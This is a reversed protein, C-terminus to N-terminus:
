AEAAALDAESIGEYLDRFDQASLSSIDATRYLVIEEGNETVESKPGFLKQIDPAARIVFKSTGDKASLIAAIGTWDEYFHEQLLPVIRDRFVARLGEFDAIPTFYAHGIAADRGRLVCLRANIVRMLRRLDINDGGDDAEIRGDGNQGAIASATPGIERFIFRRRLAIDVLAISRDSTNMTGYIDLNSPVGFPDRSYPLRVEVGGIRRGSEDFQLRKDPEILTILEGFVKAINGRNIEDIVLAYRNVPDDKARECIRKLPGDQPRVELRGGGTLSADESRVQVPRFGEIFDEYSLSPHFTVLEYRRGDPEDTYVPLISQLLTWTKGTGPPGYFIVNRPGPGFSAALEDTVSEGGLVGLNPQDVDQFVWSVVQPYKDDDIRSITNRYTYHYIVKPTFGSEWDVKLNRGDEANETVVGRAKILMCSVPKGGNPFPLGNKQVYASKIAIRDGARVSKVQELMRDRYGNEWRGESVFADTMDTGDWYAGVLWHSPTEALSMTNVPTTTTVTEQEEGTQWLSKVPDLYFDIPHGFKKELEARIRALEKDVTAASSLDPNLGLTPAISNVVDKKQQTSSIREYRDPQLLYLFVHRFQRNQANLAPGGPLKAILQLSDLWGEFDAGPQMLTEREGRPLNVLELLFLIAYSFEIWFGTSYFAGTSGIGTLVPTQLAWHSAPLKIAGIDAITQLNALKGKPSMTKRPFLYMLWAIETALLPIEPKAGELQNGLKKLFGDKGFDPHDIFLDKLIGFNAPTWLEGDQLLAQQEVICRVKWRDVADLIPEIQLDTYRSM